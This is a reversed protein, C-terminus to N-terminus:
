AYAATKEYGARTKKIKKSRTWQALSVGTARGALRRVDDITFAKSLKAFYKDAKAPGKRVRRKRRSPRGARSGRRVSGQRRDGFIDFRFRGEESMLTDLLERTSSIEERLHELANRTADRASSVMGLLDGRISRKSRQKRFRKMQAM